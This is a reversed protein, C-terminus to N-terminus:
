QGLIRKLNELSIRVCELPPYKYTEQEVIYWETGGVSRCLEIFERWKMDGEGILANRDTASYEKLHVTAARGPYRRIIDLVEDASLGGRMANGTDLQMVVDPVTNKFFIDWGTEGNFKEFEVMHNHYGVRLGEAKLRDALGNFLRATELWAGASNRMNEPIGPVILYRAGIERHFRVTELLREGMLADIGIHSGAVELGLNKLIDRLEGSSRGYFGAFEVGEYGMEAVARLTGEFDRECDHRVSYLQLAIKIPVMDAGLGIRHQGGLLIEGERYGATM